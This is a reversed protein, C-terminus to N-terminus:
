KPLSIAIASQTRNITKMVASAAWLWADRFANCWEQQTQHEVACVAVTGEQATRGTEESDVSSSTTGCSSRSRERSRTGM